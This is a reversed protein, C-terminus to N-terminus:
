SLVRKCSAKLAAVARQLEAPTHQATVIVRISPSPRQRELSSYRALALLVGERALCDDVVRQLKEDGAAYQLLPPAPCPLHTPPFTPLYAPCRM